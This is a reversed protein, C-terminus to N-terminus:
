LSEAEAARGEREDHQPARACPVAGAGEIERQDERDEASEEDGERLGARESGEGRIEGVTVAPGHRREEVRRYTQAPQDANRERQDGGSRREAKPARRAGDRASYDQQGRSAQKREGSGERRARHTPDAAAEPGHGDANKMLRGGAHPDAPQHTRGCEREPRVAIRRFRPKPREGREGGYRHHRERQGAHRQRELVDGARGGGE